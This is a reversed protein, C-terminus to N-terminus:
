PSWDLICDTVGPPQLLPHLRVRYGLRAMMGLLLWNEESAGRVSTYLFTHCTFMAQITVCSAESLIPALSLASCALIHYRTANIDSLADNMSRLSALSLIGFLLSLRHPHISEVTPVQPYNYIQDIITTM